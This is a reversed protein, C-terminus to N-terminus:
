VVAYTSIFKFYFYSCGTWSAFGILFAFGFALWVLCHEVVEIRETVIVLGTVFACEFFALMQLGALRDSEFFTVNKEVESFFSSALDLMLLLVFTELKRLLVYVCM